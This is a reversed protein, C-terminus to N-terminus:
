IDNPNQKKFNLLNSCIWSGTIVWMNNIMNAANYIIWRLGECHPTAIMFPSMIFGVLTSPVCIKVYLQSAFYHLCIWLLYIGFIKYILGGLNLFYCSIDCIKKFIIETFKKNKTVQENNDENNDEHNKNDYNSDDDDYDNNDNDNNNDNNDHDHINKLREREINTLLKGNRKVRTLYM